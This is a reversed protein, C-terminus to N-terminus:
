MDLVLYSLSAQDFEFSFCKTIKDRHRKMLEVLSEPIPQVRTRLECRVRTRQERLPVVLEVTSSM